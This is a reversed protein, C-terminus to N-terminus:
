RTDGGDATRRVKFAVHVQTGLLIKGLLFWRSISRIGNVLRLATLLNCGIAGHIIARATAGSWYKAMFVLILM